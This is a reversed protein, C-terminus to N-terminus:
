YIFYYVQILAFKANWYLIISLNLLVSMKDFM